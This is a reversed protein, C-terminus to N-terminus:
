RYRPPASPGEVGNLEAAPPASPRDPVRVHVTTGERLRSRVAATGELLQAREDISVLGLGGGARATVHDFGIGDDTITLVLEDGQRQLSVDARRARGHAHANRLAEQTIRFLGLARDATRPEAELPASLTVRIGHSREVEACHAKLAGVLGLHTLLQPHLDHSVLRLSEALRATRNRIERLTERAVPDYGDSKQLHSLDIAISAIQQCADDHLDRSLKAREAEQATLLRGALTKAKAEARRRHRRQLLLGVILITQAVVLSLVGIIRWRYLSWLSEDKFRVIADPPLRDERIGWRRLQRWDFARVYPKIEATPISDPSEGRLVRVALEATRRAVAEESLLVGGLIGSGLTMEPWCYLPANADRSLTALIDVPIFRNGAGDQFFSVFYVISDQPLRSIADRLERLPMSTLYTLAVRGEYERFQQRAIREYFGDFPSSGVIVAVSRTNPQLTLALDLTSKMDVPFIVGTANPISAVPGGERSFVLPVGPFLEARHQVLFAFPTEGEAIVVDLRLGRYKERFFDRVVAAYEPGSFRATDVYEVYYDLRGGLADRITTRLANEVLVTYPADRRSSHVVLVRKQDDVMPAAPEQAAVVSAGAVLWVLGLLGAVISRMMGM